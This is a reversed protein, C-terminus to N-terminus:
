VRPNRAIIIIEVKIAPSALAAECTARVPAMGTEVWQEWVANMSDFDQMSALWIQASIIDAKSGGLDAMIKDINALIEKTQVTIDADLSDAVQGSLYVTDGHIVAESMRAGPKIRELM